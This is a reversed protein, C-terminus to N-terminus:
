ETHEFSGRRNHCIVEPQSSFRYCPNTVRWCSVQCELALVHKQKTIMLRIFHSVPKLRRQFCSVTPHLLRSSKAFEIILKEQLTLSQGSIQWSGM